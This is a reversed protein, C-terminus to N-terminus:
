KVIYIRVYKSPMAVTKMKSWAWPVIPSQVFLLEGKNYIANKACKIYLFPIEKSQRAILNLDGSSATWKASDVVKLLKIYLSPLKRGTRDLGFIYKYSGGPPYVLELTGDNLRSYIWLKEERANRTFFAWGQPLFYFVNRKVRSGLNFPSQVSTILILTSMWVSCIVLSFFIMYISCTPQLAHNPSIEEPGTTQHTELQKM